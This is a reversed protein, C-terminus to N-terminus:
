AHGRGCMGGAVCAGQWENGGAMCGQWVHEGGHVGGVMCVGGGAM